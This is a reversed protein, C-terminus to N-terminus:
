IEIMELPQEPSVFRESPQTAIKEIYKDPLLQEWTGPAAIDLAEKFKEIMKQESYNEKVLTAGIASRRKAEDPNSLCARMQRRLEEISPEAWVIDALQPFIASEQKGPSTFEYAKVLWATDNKAFDCTGSYDTCIVPVGLAMAHWPNLGFGESRHPSVFADFSKMFSPIDLAPIPEDIIRVPARQNRNIKWEAAKLAVLIDLPEIRDNERYSKLTLEVPEDTSFEEWFAKLALDWGKREYCTNMWLIKFRDSKLEKPLVSTNWIDTDLAYPVYFIKSKPVGSSVCVNRCFYSPVLVADLSKLVSVHQSNLRNGEVVISGIITKANKVININDARGTHLQMFSDTLPRKAATEMEEALKPDLWKTEPPALFIPVVKIGQKILYKFFSQGVYSLGSANLFCTFVLDM